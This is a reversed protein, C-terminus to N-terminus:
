EKIKSFFENLEVNLVKILEEKSLTTYKMIISSFLKENWKKLDKGRNKLHNDFDEKFGYKDTIRYCDIISNLYEYYIKELEQDENMM